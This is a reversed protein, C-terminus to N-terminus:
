EILLLQTFVNERMHQAVCKARFLKGASYTFGGSAFNLNNNAYVAYPDYGRWLTM